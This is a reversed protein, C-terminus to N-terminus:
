FPRLWCYISARELLSNEPLFVSEIGHLQVSVETLEGPWLISVRCLRCASVINLNHHTLVCNYSDSANVWSAEQRKHNKHPATKQYIAFLEIFQLNLTSVSVATCVLSELLCYCEKVAGPIVGLAKSVENRRAPPRRAVGLYVLFILRIGSRDRRPSRNYRFDPRRKPRQKSKRNNRPTTCKRSLCGM